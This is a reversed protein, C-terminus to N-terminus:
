GASAPALLPIPATPPWSPSTVQQRCSPARLRRIQRCVRQRARGAARVGVLNPDVQLTFTLDRNTFDTNQPDYIFNGNADIYVRAAAFDGLEPRSDVTFRAIFNGGPVGNGSPFNPNNLPEAANSEGDLKNGAPDVVATDNITLTYRDDPLAIPNGNADKFRM